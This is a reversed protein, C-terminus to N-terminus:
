RSEGHVALIVKVSVNRRLRESAAPEKFLAAYAEACNCEALQSTYLRGFGGGIAWRRLPRMEGSTGFVDNIQEHGARRTVQFEEIVLWLQSFVVACQRRGLEHFAITGREDVRAGFKESRLKAEGPVALAAGLKGLQQRMQGFHDVVDGDHLRHGGVREIVRWALDEHAGTRLL